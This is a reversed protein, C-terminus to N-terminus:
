AEDRCFRKSWIRRTLFVGMVTGLFWVAQPEPVPSTVGSTGTATVYAADIGANLTSGSSPTLTASFAALIGTDPLTLGSLGTTPSFTGTVTASTISDGFVNCASATCDEDGSADTTFDSGPLTLSPGSTFNVVLSTITFALQPDIEPVGCAAANAAACNTIDFQNDSASIQDYSFIGVDYTDASAIASLCAMVGLLVILQSLRLIM